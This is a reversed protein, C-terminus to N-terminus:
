HTKTSQIFTKIFYTKKDILIKTPKTINDNENNNIKIKKQPAILNYEELIIDILNEALINSDTEELTELYKKNKFVKNELEDYNINKTNRINILTEEVNKIQM